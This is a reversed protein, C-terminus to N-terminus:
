NSIEIKKCLDNSKKLIYKFSFEPVVYQIYTTKGSFIHKRIISSNIDVIRNIPLVVTKKFGFEKLKNIILNNEKLLMSNYIAGSSYYALEEIRDWGLSEINIIPWYENNNDNLSQIADVLYSPSSLQSFLNSISLKNSYIKSYFYRRKTEFLMDLRENFHFLPKWNKQPNQVAPFVILKNIWKEKLLFEIVHIHNFHIPDFTGAYLAVKQKM